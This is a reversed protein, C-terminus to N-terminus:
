NNILTLADFLHKGVDIEDGMTLKAVPANLVDALMASWIVHTTCNIM